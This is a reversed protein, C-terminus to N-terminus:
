CVTMVETKVFVQLKRVWKGSYYVSRVILTLNDTLTPISGLEVPRWAEVNGKLTDQLRM